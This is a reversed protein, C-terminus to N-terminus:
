ERKDHRLFDFGDDGNTLAVPKPPATQQSQVVAPASLPPTTKPWLRREVRWVYIVITLAYIALKILSAHLVYQTDGSLEVYQVFEGHVIWLVLWVAFVALVGRWRQKLFRGTAILMGFKLLQNLM